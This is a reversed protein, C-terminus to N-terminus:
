AADPKTVIKVVIGHLATMLKMRTNNAERSTAATDFSIITASRLGASRWPPQSAHSSRPLRALMCGSPPSSREM